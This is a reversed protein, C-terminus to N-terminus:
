IKSAETTLNTYLYDHQTNNQQGQQKNLNSNKKEFFLQLEYLNSFQQSDLNFYQKIQEIIKQYSDNEFVIKELKIMFDQQKEANLYKIAKKLDSTNKMYEKLVEKLWKWIQKLTPKKEFYGDPAFSIMMETLCDTLKITDKDGLNKLKIIIDHEKQIDFEQQIQQVIQKYNIGLNFENQLDQDILKNKKQKEMLNKEKESQALQQQLKLIKEECHKKYQNLNNVVSDLKQQLTLRIEDKEQKILNLQNTTDKLKLEYIEEAKVLQERLIQNEDQLRQIKAQLKSEQNSEIKLQKIVNQAHEYNSYLDNQFDQMKKLIIEKNRIEEELKANREKEQELFHSIEEVKSYNVSMDKLGDLILSKSNNLIPNSLTPYEGKESTIFNQKESQNPLLDQSSPINNQGYNKRQFAGNFFSSQDKANISIDKNGDLFMSQDRSFCSIDINIPKIISIDRQNISHNISLDAYNAYQINQNNNTECNVNTTSYNNTVQLSQNIGNQFQQSSHVENENKHAKSQQKSYNSKEKTQEQPFDKQLLQNQFCSKILQEKIIRKDISDDELEQSLILNKNEIQKQFYAQVPINDNQQKNVKSDYNKSSQYDQQNINSASRGNFVLNDKQQKNLNLYSQVNLQGGGNQIQNGQNSAFKKYTNNIVSSQGIKLNNNDSLLNQSQQFHGKSFQNQSGSHNASQHLQANLQLGIMNNNQNSGMKKFTSQDLSKSGGHHAIQNLSKQQSAKTNLTNTNDGSKTNQHNVNENIESFNNKSHEINQQQKLLLHHNFNQHLTSENKSSVQQMADQSSNRQIVQYSSQIINGNSNNRANLQIDFAQGGSRQQLQNQVNKFPNFRSNNSSSSILCSSDNNSTNNRVSFITNQALSHRNSQSDGMTQLIQQANTNSHSKQHMYKLSSQSIM